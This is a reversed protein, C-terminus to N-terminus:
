ERCFLLGLGTLALSPLYYAQHRINTMLSNIRCMNDNLHFYKDVALSMNKGKIAEDPNRMEDGESEECNEPCKEM